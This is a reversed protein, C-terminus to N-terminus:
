GKSRLFEFYELINESLLAYGQASVGSSDRAGEM